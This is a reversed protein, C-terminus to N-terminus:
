CAIFLCIFVTGNPQDGFRLVTLVFDLFKNLHKGFRLAQILLSVNQVVKDSAITKIVFNLNSLNTLFFITEAPDLM